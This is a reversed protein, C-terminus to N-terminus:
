SPTISIIKKNETEKNEENKDNETNTDIEEVELISPKKDSEKTDSEKTDSEKTDSEKTASDKTDSEKTDLSSSPYSPSEFGVLSPVSKVSLDEPTNLNFELSIPTTDSKTNIKLQSSEHISNDISINNNKIPSMNPESNDHSKIRNTESESASETFPKLFPTKEVGMKYLDRQDLLAVAYKDYIEKLIKQQIIMPQQIIWRQDKINLLTIVDYPPPYRTVFKITGDEEKVEKYFTKSPVDLMEQTLEPKDTGEGIDSESLTYKKQEDTIKLPNIKPEEKDDVVPLEKSQHTKIAKNMLISWEVFSESLDSKSNLLLSPNASYSMSELQDINKDTIIRMQVNMVALEQIFLKLAYPVRLISFSRGHKSINEINMKGDPTSTFKVPGDAIPSFFLNKSKNYIAICGTKNCVAIFYEDGRVLFSENLFFSMGHALVGDREMEGIRLGGDNARGGVPQKNLVNNPGRARYNIKDKTMHKLRMYYTPGIYIDSTLPEGTMGNYMVQNGTYNFGANVMLPAYTNYNSGKTQFATCDGFGGYSLCLKGFLSEIIQGITMRSPLAHPNIIIDPKTGDSAFPMNDEPIILGITGKQGARSAMKDGIAPVREERIRVKATNFGDENNTIFSKDVYGLQGKKTKVSDDIWMDQNDMNFQIKGIVIIKDNLETGEKIMGYDDLYSYDYGKKKGIVNNKEISAFKSNKLGTVKSSEEHSEYMSFYTTRFLGRDISGKNILIADEVNYGTYSMIAVITNVGYPQEEKNIYELYRSKILPIQGYNLLIGSKDIRSAFNTHYMSVAQRSQGCSFSNRTVPNNEPYIVQNGMVGLLFSPDVELHTYYKSKKLDTYNVAIYCTEEENPDLYELVSKHKNLNNIISDPNINLDPYIELLSYVLNKKYNYDSPKQKTGSVLLEWNITQNEIKDIIEKRNFSPEENVVYYIPRVMRGADTYIFIENSENYFAISTHVSIIGNRRYLRMENVLEIPNDITGIWNGNVFIKTTNSIYEPSSESLLKIPSNIRLWNIIEESSVGSTISTSIALHKHLGINGGDPTDIPDIFGWQSGNLLRPGVVKANSDLPLNIKRIHSMFSNWSLRNLDQVVGLRKTYTQSGWNGKFAKKFGNEVTRDKFFNKFNSEILSTFNNKYKDIEKPRTSQKKTEKKDLSNDKYEGKHYYYEEDIKKAIEKNQILFYERFLDYLLKGTLEVRKFRFNDRDTPQKENTSVQLLSFTMHGLYYAKDLYNLEGIHPLFYDSLIEIVSSVTGRKTFTAIYELATQQNFIKNADHISPIFYEMYSSNKEIDLLCYKIISLDSEVGLARMVIFLPMEKKVNPVTVVIQKNSLRASPAVMKVATTRIPKSSDESVSRIEASYSYTDTPSNKKVNLINEAFKEQSVIVKEKGDIIFYGGYDNRCEGMNYRVDRSLGNLICLNSHLMIPFRGLYIKELTISHEKREDNETYVFDVDVDYHITVGYTMNRLRADNPYMYHAYNEDYIIPKGIYIKNGQKGGLYLFCENPLEKEENREQFRVPNNEYFIRNIGYNYFDNYSDLHHSVLIEPNDNFYTDIIKWSLNSLDDSM